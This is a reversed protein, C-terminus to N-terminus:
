GQSLLERLDIIAANARSLYAAMTLSHNALVGFGSGNLIMPSWMEGQSGELEIIIQRVSATANKDQLVSRFDVEIARFIHLLAWASGRAEYFADDLETWPTKIMEGDASDTLPDSATSEALSDSVSAKGVSEGLVRSLSGLRTELDALWNSLNDARAFFQADPQEPNSLRDLYRYLARIGRRYESETSPIAWSGSDFHFQPEVVVLDQDEASQSQSRSIDKRMARSLDRLQVLVGYEWAPMNDLWLGPPFYDNSIYGGPKDLLTEAIRIMTVTTAFGTVPERNMEAAVTRTHERVSYVDPESSWIMGLVVTVLLYIILLGLLWKGLGGAYDNVDDRRDRFYQKMRSLM